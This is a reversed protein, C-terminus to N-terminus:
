TGKAWECIEVQADIIKWNPDGFASYERINGRDTQLIAILKGLDEDSQPVPTGEDDTISDRNGGLFGLADLKARIIPDESDGEYLADEKARLEFNAKM